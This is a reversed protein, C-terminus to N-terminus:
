SFAMIGAWRAEIASGRAFPLHEALYAELAAQVDDTVADVDTAERELFLHRRGGCLVRGDERQRFYDFGLTAYCPIELTRPLPATALMQARQPTVFPA